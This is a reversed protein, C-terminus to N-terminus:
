VCSHLEADPHITRLGYNNFFVGDMCRMKDAYFPFFQFVAAGALPCYAKAMAAKAAPGTPSYDRLDVLLSEYVAQADDLTFDGDPFHHLVGILWDGVFNRDKKFNELKVTKDDPAYSRSQM